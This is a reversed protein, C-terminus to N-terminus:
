LNLQKKYESNRLWQIQEYTPISEEKSLEKECEAYTKGKHHIKTQVEIKLEPIKIWDNKEAEKKLQEKLQKLKKETEDIKNQTTKM